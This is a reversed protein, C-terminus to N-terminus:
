RPFAARFLDFEIPAASHKGPLYVAVVDFRVPVQRRAQESLHKRYISALSRLTKQKHPDVSFEAPVINRGTRTKVEIICLTEGDWAILDLDGPLKPTSWRRAVIVYGLRKLHFLAAEEGQLGTALHPAMEPTRGLRATLSDVGQLFRQSLAVRVNEDSGRADGTNLSGGSLDSGM